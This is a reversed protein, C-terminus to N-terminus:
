NRSSRQTVGAVIGTKIDGNRFVVWSANVRHTKTDGTSIWQYGMNDLTTHYNSWTCSYDLLGYGFPVSVGAQFNQADYATAFDSSRGGSVFWKDAIRLLNNATLSGTLQDEGTSKQGSNDLSISLSLPFEPTATLNVVSYGHQEAPLIEIQVPTTRLRNIQEMGQEIDRLNLVRGELHPFVMKLM